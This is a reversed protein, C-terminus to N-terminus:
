IILLLMPFHGWKKDSDITEVRTDIVLGINVSEGPTSKDVTRKEAAVLRTSLKTGHHVAVLWRRVRFFVTTALELRVEAYTNNMHSEKSGAWLMFAVDDADNAAYTFGYPRVEGDGADFDGM